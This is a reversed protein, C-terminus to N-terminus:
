ITNASRLNPRAKTTQLTYTYPLLMNNYSNNIYYYNHYPIYLTIQYNRQLLHM